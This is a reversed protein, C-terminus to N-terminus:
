APTNKDYRKSACKICTVTFQGKVQEGCEQCYIILPPLSEKMNVGGEATNARRNWAKVTVEYLWKMDFRITGNTLTIRCSNCRITLSRKRTYNNGHEIFGASGGCFPCPLLKKEAPMNNKKRLRCNGGAKCIIPPQPPRLRVPMSRPIVVPANLGM